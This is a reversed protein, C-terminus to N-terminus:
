RLPPFHRPYPQRLGAHDARTYKPDAILGSQLLSSVFDPLETADVLRQVLADVIARTRGVAAGQDVAAIEDLAKELANTHSRYQGVIDVLLTASVLHTSSFLIEILGTVAM